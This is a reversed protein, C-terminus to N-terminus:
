VLIRLPRSVEVAVRAPIFPPLFERRFMRQQISQAGKRDFLVFVFDQFM